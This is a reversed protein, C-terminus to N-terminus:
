GLQSYVSRLKQGIEQWDYRQRALNQGAEGLQRAYDDNSLIARIADELAHTNGPPYLIGGVGNETVELTPPLESSVYPTGLAMAEALVIGFGEVSSPLCLIHSKAMTELVDVHKEVFGSFHVRDSVGLQETLAELKAQQPGSGIIKVQLNPMDNRLEAVVELLDPIRKYNVLRGVFCITPDDYRELNKPLRTFDVGNPIVAIRKPDM